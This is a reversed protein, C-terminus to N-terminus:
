LYRLELQALFSALVKSGSWQQADEQEVGKYQLIILLWLTINM